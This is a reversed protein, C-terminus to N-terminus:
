PKIWASRRGELIRRQLPVWDEHDIINRYILGAWDARTGVCQVGTSVIQDLLPQGASRFDVLDVARGFTLAIADILAMKQEATLPRDAQVAIDIDSDPLAKGRALSGFLAAVKIDPFALLTQRLLDLDPPTYM